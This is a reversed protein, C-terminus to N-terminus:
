DELPKHPPKVGTPIEPLDLPVKFDKTAETTDTPRNDTNEEGPRDGMGIQESQQTYTGNQEEEQM